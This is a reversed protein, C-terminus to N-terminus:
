DQFAKEFYKLSGKISVGLLDSAPLPGGIGINSLSDIPVDLAVALQHQWDTPWGAVQFALAPQNANPLPEPRHHTVTQYSLQRSAETIKGRHLNLRLFFILRPLLNEDCLATLLRFDNPIEFPLDDAKRDGSWLGEIAAQPAKRLQGAKDIAFYRVKMPVAM